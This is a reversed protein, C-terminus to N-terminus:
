VMKKIKRALRYIAYWLKNYVLDYAGIYTVDEGGFGRKFRSIGAWPHGVGAGAPTVGGFDYTLCGRLKAERIAEWQLLYPAMLERFKDTSAGHLYVARAGFFSVVIAALPRDQYRAVLLAANKTKGLTEVLNQYYVYPHGAFRDRITTETLMQWFLKVNRGTTDNEVTVGRKEALRINYRAKPKMRNLLDEESFGLDLLVTDNPQVHWGVKRFGFHSLPYHEQVQETEIPPDVRLFIPKETVTIDSLKDLLLQWIQNVSATDAIVPGHPCYFYSQGAPLPLRIITAAARPLGVNNTVLLRWVRRNSKRQLEGWQWSQLVSSRQETLFRNFETQNSTEIVQM